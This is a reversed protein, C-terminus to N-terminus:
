GRSWSSGPDVSVVYLRCIPCAAAAGAVAGAAASDAIIAGVPVAVAMAESPLSLTPPLTGCIATALPLLHIIVISDSRLSFSRM